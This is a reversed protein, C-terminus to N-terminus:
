SVSGSFISKTLKVKPTLGMWELESALKPRVGTWKLIPTASKTDLNFIDRVSYTGAADDLGIESIHTILRRGSHLRYRGADATGREM